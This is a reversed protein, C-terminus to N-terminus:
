ATGRVVPDATALEPHAFDGMRRLRLGASSLRDLFAPLGTLDPLNVGPFPTNGPSGGMEAVIRNLVADPRLTAQALDWIQVRARVWVSDLVNLFQLETWQLYASIRRMDDFPMGSLYVPVIWAGTVALIRANRDTAMFWTLDQSDRPSFMFAQRRPAMRILSTLFGNPDLDRLGASDCISGPGITRGDSFQVRDRAFLHGHVDTALMASLQTAIDPFVDSVGYLVSYPAATKGNERDKAPYRSQMYLGPRGLTHRQVNREIVRDVQSSDPERIETTTPDGSSPFQAYLGTARPWIKRAIFCQSQDLMQAHDDYFIYPKGQSDFKSLTLSRNAIRNSQRRVLTQFYSEDPIWVRHFYRDFEARRPDNLIGDLTARTLCWWQSGLHGVVGEPIRRQFGLRRQLDVYHDFARRQRRFSFPFRLTFREENLGGVTWGVDLANVSEIFEVGPNQRLYERLEAIPRLPLCAGSVLLVHTLTPFDDLLIGAGAQTAAVLGFTGWECRHRKVWRVNPCDQLTQQMTVMEAASVASDVHIAVAADNEHWTRAM